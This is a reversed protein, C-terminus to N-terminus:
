WELMPNAPCCTCFARPHRPMPRTSTDSREARETGGAAAESPDGPGLVAPGTALALSSTSRSNGRESAHAMKRGSETGNRRIQFTLPSAGVPSRGRAPGHAQGADAGGRSRPQVARGRVTARTATRPPLRYDGAAMRRPRGLRQGPQELSRRLRRGARDRQYSDAAERYRSLGFLVNGLNFHLIPDAPDLRVARGYLEVAGPLDQADEAALAEDFLSESDERAPAVTPMDGPPDFNFRLQGNTEALTGNLRVLIQGDHELLALQSLPTEHQPLWRDIQELGRRINALSVGQVILECIRKASAVQALDFFALRHVTRRPTVLGLRAWRRVQSARLGLVRGLEAVTLERCICEGPEVLGLRAFLEEESIVALGAEARRLEQVRLALPSPSGDRLCPWGDGGVVVLSTDPSPYGVLLGGHRRVVEVVDAQTMALFRGIVCVKQGNLLPATAAVDLQGGGRIADNPYETEVFPM